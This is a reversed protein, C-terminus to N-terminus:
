LQYIILYPVGMTVSIICALLPDVLFILTTIFTAVLVQAIFTLFPLLFKLIVVNVESLINKRHDSTNTNLYFEYPMSFYSKTLQVALKLNNRYIFRYQVWILYAEFANKSIFVILAFLGTIFL